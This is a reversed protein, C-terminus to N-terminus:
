ESGATAPSSDMPTNYWDAALDSWLPNQERILATKRIRLWGKLEKERAIAQNIDRHEEFCVLSKLGYQKTFGPILGSKHEWM